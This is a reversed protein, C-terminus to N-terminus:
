PGYGTARQVIGLELLTQHMRELSLFSNWRLTRLFGSGSWEPKVWLKLFRLAIVGMCRRSKIFAIMAAVTVALAATPCSVAGTFGGVGAAGAGPGTGHVRPSFEALGSGM